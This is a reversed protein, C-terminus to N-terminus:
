GRMWYKKEEPYAGVALALPMAAIAIDRFLVEFNSLNFVVIAVLLATAIASPIFIRVNLLIWVAIGVELLGFGHLLVAEPIPLNKIFGPFYSFWSIPDGLAAYPPYLFAIAVGIRLIHHALKEHM